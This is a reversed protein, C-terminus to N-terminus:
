PITVCMMSRHFLLPRKDHDSGFANVRGLVGLHDGAEFVTEVNCEFWAHMGDLLPISLSSLHWGVRDFKDNAPVGFIRAISGHEAALVNVAFLGADEVSRLGYSNRKLFISVLPPNLSVSTFSQCTVGVPQDSSRDSSRDRQRESPRERVMTTVVTLSTAFCGLAARLAVPDDSQLSEVVQM